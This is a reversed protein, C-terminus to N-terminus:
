EVAEVLPNIAALKKLRIPRFAEIHNSTLGNIRKIEEVTMGSTRGLSYLTTKPKILYTAYEANYTGPVEGKLIFECRRSQQRQYPDKPNKVSEVEGRARIVLSSRDMGQAILYDFVTKGRRQSLAKNYAGHGVHDTFANIEVQVSPNDRCFALLDDLVFRAEPRLQYSDFNFYINEFYKTLPAQVKGEVKLDNIHYMVGQTLQSNEGSVLIRYSQDYPLETYRFSGDENTTTTKAIEGSADVLSIIVSSAAEDNEAFSLVGSVSVTNYPQDEGPRIQALENEFEGSILQDVKEKIAPELGAVFAEQDQSLPVDNASATIVEELLKQERVPMESYFTKQLMYYRFAEDPQYLDRAAYPKRELITAIVAEKSEPLFSYIDFGGKGELRNSALYGREPGMMFYADDYNSNFPRGLNVISSEDSLQVRFIDLGGLGYHGDSSFFLVKEDGYYYPSVENFPTNIVPGLNVPDNWATASKKVSMWIDNQGQGGKRDSVFFLTDGSPSLSPQKADYGQQNINNDLRRPMQWEQNLYESVYIYCHDDIENCSTFYFKKGDPSFTGAGDGLASNLSTFGDEGPYSEWGKDTWQFRFNDGFAEGLRPNIEGKNSKPRGSTLVFVTDVNSQAPAYDNYQSNLPKKENRFDFDRFPQERLEIALLAGKKEVEAQLMFHEKNNIKVEESAAKEQFTEFTTVAFTYRGNLKQMLALYFLAQPYKKPAIEYAKNYHIEALAYKFLFRNCHGSQYFAYANTDNERLVKQYLKAAENYQESKFYADAEAMMKKESQALLSGSLCLVMLLAFSFFTFPSILAIRNMFIYM